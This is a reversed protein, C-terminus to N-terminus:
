EMNERTNPKIAPPDRKTLIEITIMTETQCHKYLKPNYVQATQPPPVIAHKPTQLRICPITIKKSTSSLIGYHRIRVFGKPLIHMAFKRVFEMAELTMECKKAESRYDKYTFTVSNGRQRREAFPSKGYFTPNAVRCFYFAKAESCRDYDSFIDSERTKHFPSCQHTAFIYPKDIPLNLLITFSGPWM